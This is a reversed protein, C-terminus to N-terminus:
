KKKGWDIRIGRKGSKQLLYQDAELASKAGEGASIVVQKFTITTVDGAAFIGPRSTECNSGIKIQGRADTELIDKVWDAKAMYGIEVFVVDAPLEETQQTDKHFIKAGKVFDDGPIEKTEANAVVHINPRDTMRKVIVAEASLHESVSILTVDKALHSLTIAAQVASNGGGIVLVKKDKYIHPECISCYMVGKGTFKEEGPINLHRHSLGFALIVTQTQVKSNPTHVFFTGDEQPMISTVTDFQFAAGYKEGQAKFKQMLEMGDIFEIGPYNEIDPTTAAQGGIDQSLVLTKHGRRSAFMAATLGAAGGGVVIVDYIIKEPM